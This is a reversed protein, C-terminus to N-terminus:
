RGAEKMAALREPVLRLSAELAPLRRRPDMFNPGMVDLDASMPQVRIVRTGAGELKAVEADLTRSMPARLLREARGLVGRGVEAGASAMPAILVVEDLQLSAVLDVSAPSAVGGDVYHLGNISVAPFWGPVAWSAAVAERMSATPAHLSGFPIRTGTLLDVAVIWTAPHQVWGGAPVLDDVLDGLFSASTRGNPVLGSLATVSSRRRLGAITLMPSGPPGIPLRPLMRPPQTFFRRVSTRATSRDRQADLMEEVGVGAGLMTAITSGSSTGVIVEATRPDWALAREVAALAGVTWAGGVTGGCGLVLGRRTM